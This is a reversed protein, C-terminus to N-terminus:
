HYFIAAGIAAVVPFYDLNIRNIMKMLIAKIEAATVQNKSYYEKSLGHVSVVDQRKTSFNASFFDFVETLPTAGFLSEKAFLRLLCALHSVSFELRLRRTTAMSRKENIQTGPDISEKVEKLWDSLMQSLSPWRHDYRITDGQAQYAYLQIYQGIVSLKAVETKGKFSSRILEQHNVFVDFQNFELDLLKEYILEHFKASDAHSSLYFLEKVLLRFYLLQRLTCPLAKKGTMEEIYRLLCRRVKLTIDSKELTESVMRCTEKLDNTFHLRYVTGVDITDELYEGYYIHLSDLLQCVKETLLSPAATHKSTNTDLLRFIFKCHYTFYRMLADKTVESFVAFTWAQGVRAITEDMEEITSEPENKSLLNELCSLVTLQESLIYEASTKEQIL